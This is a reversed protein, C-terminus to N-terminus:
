FLSVEASTQMIYFIIPSAKFLIGSGKLLPINKLNPSNKKRHFFIYSGGMRNRRKNCFSYQFTRCSIKNRGRRNQSQIAICGDVNNRRLTPELESPLYDKQLTKMNNDIWSYNAKNFKWFHVHSDIVMSTYKRLYVDGREM